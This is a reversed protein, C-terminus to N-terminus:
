NREKFKYELVEAVTAMRTNNSSVNTLSGLEFLRDISTNTKYNLVFAIQKPTLPLEMISNVRSDYAKLKEEYIALFPEIINTVQETLLKELSM